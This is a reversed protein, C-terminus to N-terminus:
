CSFPVAIPVLLFATARTTPWTASRLHAGDAIRVVVLLMTATLPRDPLRDRAEPRQVRAVRVDGSFVHSAQVDRSSSRRSSRRPSAWACGARRAAVSAPGVPRRRDVYGATRVPDASLPLADYSPANGAFAVKRRSTSPAPIASCCCWFAVSQRSPAAVTLIFFVFVQGAMDGLASRRLEPQRRAADARDGDADHHRQPPQPFAQWASPM